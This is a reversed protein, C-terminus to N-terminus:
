EGLFIYKGWLLVPTKIWSLSISSSSNIYVSRLNQNRSSGKLGELQKNLSCLNHLADKSIFVGTNITHKLKNTTKSSLTFTLHLTVTLQFLLSPYLYIPLRNSHNHHILDPIEQWHPALLGMFGKPQRFARDRFWPDPRDLGPPVCSKFIAASTHTLTYTHIYTWTHTYATHVTHAHILTHICLCIHTHTSPYIKKQGTQRCYM